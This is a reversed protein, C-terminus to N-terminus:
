EDLIFIPVNTDNYQKIEAQVYPDPYEGQNAFHLPENGSWYHHFRGKYAKPM